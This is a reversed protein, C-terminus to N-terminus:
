RSRIGFQVNLQNSHVPSLYAIHLRCHILLTFRREFRIHVPFPFCFSRVVCICIFLTCVFSFRCLCHSAFHPLHIFIKHFIYRGNSLLLSFAVLKPRDPTSHISYSTVDTRTVENTKRARETREDYTLQMKATCKKRTQISYLATFLRRHQQCNLLLFKTKPPM